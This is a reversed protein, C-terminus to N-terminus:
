QKTKTKSVGKKRACIFKGTEWCTGNENENTCNYEPYYLYTENEFLAVFMLFLMFILSVIRISSRLLM